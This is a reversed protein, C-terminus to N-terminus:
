YVWGCGIVVAEESCSLSTMVQFTLSCLQLLHTLVQYEDGVWGGRAPALWISDPSACPGRLDAWEWGHDFGTQPGEAVVGGWVRGAQVQGLLLGTLGEWELSNRRDAHGKAKQDEDWSLHWRWLSTNESEGSQNGNRVTHGYLVRYSEGNRDIVYSCSSSTLTMERVLGCAGFLCPGCKPWARLLYELVIQQQIDGATLSAGAKAGTIVGSTEPAGLGQMADPSFVAAVGKSKPLQSSHAPKAGCTQKRPPFVLEDEGALSPYWTLHLFTSASGSSKSGWFNRM